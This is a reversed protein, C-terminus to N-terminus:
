TAETAELEDRSPWRNLVSFDVKWVDVEFPEGKQDVNLTASVLVGDSDYFNVEAIRAGFRRGSRDPFLLLSGMGGDNMPAVPLQERHFPVRGLAALRQVLPVEHDFLLRIMQATGCGMEAAGVMLLAILKV